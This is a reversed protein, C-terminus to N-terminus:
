AKVPGLAEGGVSAQCPWGRSSIHSFGHTMGHTSKAQRNLGHSSPPPPPPYTKNTPVTTRQIPNCVGESGETRKRVGGTKDRESIYEM